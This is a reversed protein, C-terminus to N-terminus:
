EAPAVALRHTRGRRHDDLAQQGARLASSMTLVYFLTAFGLDGGLLVGILVINAEIARRLKFSDIGREEGARLLLEMSGGTLGAHLVLAVAAAISLTGLVVFLWRMALPQPDNILGVFADVAIGNMLIFIISTVRPRQGLVFAITFLLGTFLWGAQGLSLGTRDRIATLMVDYAPVGLRAHVFLSVGIGILVSGFLLNVLRRFEVHNQPRTAVREAAIIGHRSIGVFRRAGASALDRGVTATTTLHRTARM